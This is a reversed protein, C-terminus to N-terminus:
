GAAAPHPGIVGPRALRFVQADDYFGADENGAWWGPVGLLPLPAFPKAALRDATLDAALWEDLAQLDGAPDFAPAPFPDADGLGVIVPDDFARNCAHM